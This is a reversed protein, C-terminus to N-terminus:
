IQKRRRKVEALTNASCCRKKLISGEFTLCDRLQQWWQWRVGHLKVITGGNHAIIVRLALKEVRCGEHMVRKREKYHGEPTIAYGCAQQAGSPVDERLAYVRRLGVIDGGGDSVPEIAQTDETGNTM